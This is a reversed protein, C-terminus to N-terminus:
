YLGHFQSHSFNESSLSLIVKSGLEDTSLRAFDEDEPEWLEEVLNFGTLVFGGAGTM